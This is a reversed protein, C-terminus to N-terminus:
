SESSPRVNSSIPVSARLMCLHWPIACSSASGSRRCVHQLEDFRRQGASQRPRIAVQVVADIKRDRSQRLEHPRPRRALEGVPQRGHRSGHQVRLFPEVGGGRAGLVRRRLGKEGAKARSALQACLQPRHLDGFLASGFDLEPQALLFTFELLRNEQGVADADVREGVVADHHGTLREAQRDHERVSAGRREVDTVHADLPEIAVRGAREGRRGWTSATRRGCGGTRRQRREGFILDAAAIERQRDGGVGPGGFGIPMTLAFRAPVHEVVVRRESQRVPRRRKVNLRRQTESRVRGLDEGGQRNLVSVLAVNEAAFFSGRQHDDGSQGHAHRRPNRDHRERGRCRRRRRAAVPRPRPVGAGARGGAAPRPRPAAGAAGGGAGSGVSVRSTRTVTTLSVFPSISLTTASSMGSPHVDMGASCRRVNVRSSSDCVTRKWSRLGGPAM